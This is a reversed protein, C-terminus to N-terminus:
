RLKQLKRLVAQAAGPSGGAEMSENAKEWAARDLPHIEDLRKAALSANVTKLDTALLGDFEGAVDNREHTLSEIRDIYYDAPKGEYFVLAGYLESTKERIREEGTIAGGEKTAVIKKRIVDSKDALSALQKNLPDDKGLKAARELLAERVGNIRAVDFSLDGLLRYVRMSAEFELQRDALSYKARQDMGLVIHTALVEKNRTLKVTYTGPVVRPGITSEPALTAAPPVTPAKMRM